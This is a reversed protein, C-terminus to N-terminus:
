LSVVGWVSINGAKIDIVKLVRYGGLTCSSERDQEDSTASWGDKVLIKCRTKPLDM